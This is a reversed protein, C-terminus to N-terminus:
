RESQIVSNNVFPFVKLKDLDSATPQIEHIRIPSFQRSLSVVRPEQVELDNDIHSAHLCAVHSTCAHWM